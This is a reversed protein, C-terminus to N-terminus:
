SQFRAGEKVRHRCHINLGQGRAALAGGFGPVPSLGVLTWEEAEGLERSSRLVRAPEGTRFTVEVRGLSDGVGGGVAKLWAEKRTWLNLFAVPRDAEPVAMLRASEDPTFFRRAIGEADPKRDLREIDIGVACKKAVGILAVGGTHTLNFQLQGQFLGDLEPKGKPGYRFKLSAADSGLCEGLIQRLAARGAVFRRRLEDTAFKAAREREDRSLLAMSSDLPSIGDLDVSWVRVENEGLPGGVSSAPWLWEISAMDGCGLPVAAVAGNRNNPRIPM